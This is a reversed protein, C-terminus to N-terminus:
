GELPLVTLIATITSTGGSLNTITIPVTAGPAAELSYCIAAPSLDLTLNSITTIAELLVGHEGTPDTTQERSLDATQHAASSYVRIWAPASTEIRLVFCGKGIAVSQTSDVANNALTISTVTYNSRVHRAKYDLTTQDTTGDIGIKQELSHIADNLNCHQIDHYLDELAADLTDTAGPNPFRDLIVPFRTVTIKAKISLTM